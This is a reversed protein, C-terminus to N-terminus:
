CGANSPRDICYPQCRDRILTSIIGKLLSILPIYRQSSTIDVLKMLRDALRSSGCSRGTNVVTGVESEGEEAVSLTDVGRTVDGLGEDGLGEVSEKM